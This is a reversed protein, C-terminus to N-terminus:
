VVDHLKKLYTKMLLLILTNNWTTTSEQALVRVLHLYVRPLLPPGREAEGTSGDVSYTIWTQPASATLLRTKKKGKSAQFFIVQLRFIKQSRLWPNQTIIM